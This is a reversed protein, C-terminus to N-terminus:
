YPMLSGRKEIWRKRVATQFRHFKAIEDIWKIGYPYEEYIFTDSM